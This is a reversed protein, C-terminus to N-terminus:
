TVRAVPSVMLRELRRFIRLSIFAKEAVRPQTNAQKSRRHDSKFNLTALNLFQETNTSSESSPKYGFESVTVWIAGHQARVIADYVHTLDFVQIATVLERYRGSLDRTARYPILERRILSRAVVFIIPSDTDPINNAISISLATAPYPFM